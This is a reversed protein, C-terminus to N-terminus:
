FRLRLGGSTQLGGTDIAVGGGDQSDLDVSGRSFRVMGGVGVWNSFYFAVDAGVHFGTTAASQPQRSAGAFTADNYPYTQDFTVGTVLEQTVNFFTPGGFLAIDVSRGAPIVWFAQIHVAMEQRALGAATGSIQRSRDFLFPHPIRGTIGADDEHSFQSVAAGVALHRWIRVGGSVDLLTDGGGRYRADFDGEEPGFLPHSFAINDSFDASAAQLGGNITIFGRAESPQAAAPRVTGASGGVCLMALAVSVRFPRSCRRMSMPKRM